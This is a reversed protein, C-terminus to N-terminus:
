LCALLHSIIIFKFVPFVQSFGKAAKLTDMKKKLNKIAEQNTTTETSLLSVCSAISFFDNLFCGPYERKM